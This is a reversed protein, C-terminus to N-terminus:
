RVALAIITAFHIKSILILMWNLCSIFAKNTHTVQQGTHPLSHYCCNRQAATPGFPSTCCYCSEPPPGSTGAWCEECFMGVDQGGSFSSYVSDSLPKVESLIWLNLWDTTYYISKFPNMCEYAMKSFLVNMWLCNGHSRSIYIHTYQSAASCPSTRETDCAQACHQWWRSESPASTNPAWWDCLLWWM